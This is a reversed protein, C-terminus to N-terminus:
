RNPTSMISTWEHHLISYGSGEVVVAAAYGASPELDSMTWRAAESESGSISLLRAPEGPMLSVDFDQLPHSIGNGIAKVYAEKRTWCNFFSEVLMHQPLSRLQANENPSFNRAAIQEIDTIPRIYEVDIGVKPQYSIAYFAMNHSHSLNFFIQNAFGGSLFPKGAQEYGFTLQQPEANLYGTLLYRLIGRAVIFAERDHPFHFRAARAAEDASLTQRLQQLLAPSQRLSVRWIHVDKDDLALSRLASAESHYTEM